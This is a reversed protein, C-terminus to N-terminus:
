HDHQGYQKNVTNCLFKWLGGHGAYWPSLCSYLVRLVLDVKINNLFNIRCNFRLNPCPRLYKAIHGDSYCSGDKLLPAMTEHSACPLTLTLQRSEPLHDFNNILPHAILPKDPEKRREFTHWVQAEIEDIMSNQIINGKM